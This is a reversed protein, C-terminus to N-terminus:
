VPKIHADVMNEIFSLLFFGLLTFVTFGIFESTNQPTTELHACQM